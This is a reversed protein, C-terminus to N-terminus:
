GPFPRALMALLKKVTQAVLFARLLITNALLEKPNKRLMEHFFRFSSKAWEM